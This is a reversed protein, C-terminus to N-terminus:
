DIKLKIYLKYLILCFMYFITSIFKFILREKSFVFISVHIIKAQKYNSVSTTLFFMKGTASSMFLLKDCRKGWTEKILQARSHTKPSTTIWCLIRGRKKTMHPSFLSTRNTITQDIGYKNLFPNKGGISISVHSDLVVLFYITTIVTVGFIFGALFHRSKRRSTQCLLACFTNTSNSM